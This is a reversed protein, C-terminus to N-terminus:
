LLKELRPLIDAEAEALSMDTITFGAARIHGGGGYYAAVSAVDAGTSRLSGRITGDRQEKLTMAIEVGALARVVDNVTDFSDEGLPAIEEYTLSAYAIMGGAAVQMKTLSLAEAQMQERSKSDFLLHNIEAADIGIDLLAAAARLTNATVNAYRFCRTDSSIAAYMGEAVAGLCAAPDLPPSLLLDYLVEGTSSASPSIWNPAFPTGVAHHDIMLDPTTDTIYQDAIRGLQSPSAVDLSIVTRGERDTIPSLKLGETLFHLRTPIPDACDISVREGRALYFYALAVASGVADGDPKRHILIIPDRAALLAARVADRDLPKNNMGMGRRHVTMRM